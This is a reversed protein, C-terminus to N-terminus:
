SQGPLMRSSSFTISRATASSCVGVTRGSLRGAPAHTLGADAAPSPEGSVNGSAPNSRSCCTWFTSRSYM